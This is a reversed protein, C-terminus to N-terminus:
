IMPVASLLICATQGWSRPANMLKQYFKRAARLLTHTLVALKGPVSRPREIMYITTPITGFERKYPEDGITFDFVKDEAAIRKEILSDLFVFGPSHRGYNEYDCGILLMHYRGAHTLGFIRGIPAGDCTMMSTHSLGADAGNCAVTSYFDRVAQRNLPDNKFRGRRVEALGVLAQRIDTRDAIEKLQVDGSRFLRRKKRDLYRRFSTTMAGARWSQHDGGLPTSHATFDHQRFNAPFFLAWQSIDRKRIHRIRLIDHDPLLAAIREKLEDMRRLSRRNDRRVVPANYDSVGLDAPEIVSLGSVTRVVLPLLFQLQGGGDYGCIILPRAKADHLLHDYIAQLWVPHQFVTAGSEGFLKGYPEGTFDFGELRELRLGELADDRNVHPLIM